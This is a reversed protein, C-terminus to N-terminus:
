PTPAQAPLLGQARLAQWFAAPIAHALMARSDQWQAVDQAGAVVIDVAPHALPFQLAAARLPVGHAACTREVAATREIWAQPARAYNFRPEGGGLVGTALIGSNFVGGLAIRVGRAVCLPLLAALAGHDILSYRGALLLCDLEAGALVDLCVQVDNVGLGVAGVLGERQLTRLTPLTEGLVQARVQPYAAGHTAADCDHVYAVDLRALGLRQLSDEVSRRTGAASYDWRQTFPLVDVYGNQARAARADPSLVRGVKSSLVFGERPLARLAQGFRQESLGNGYHPATDFSRCGDALAAALVAQAHDEPVARFLNGLPAGGLGLRQGDACGPFRTAPAHPM